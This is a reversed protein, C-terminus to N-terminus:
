MCSHLLLENVSCAVECLMGLSAACLVWLVVAGFVWWLTTTPAAAITTTSATRRRGRGRSRRWQAQGGNQELLLNRQLPALGEGSRNMGEGAGVECVGLELRQGRREFQWGVSVERESWFRRKGEEVHGIRCIEGEM